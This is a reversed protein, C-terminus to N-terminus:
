QREFFLIEDQGGQEDSHTDTFSKGDTAVAIHDHASVQPAPFYQKVTGDVPNFLVQRLSVIDFTNCDTRRWQMLRPYAGRTAYSKGDFQVTWNEINPADGNGVFLATIGDSGSQAIVVFRGPIYPNEQGIKSKAENLRWAGLLPDGTCRAAQAEAPISAFPMGAILLIAAAGSRLNRIIM